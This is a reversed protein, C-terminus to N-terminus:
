APMEGGNRDTAGPITGLHAALAAADAFHLGPPCDSGQMLAMGGDHAADGLLVATCGAAHATQMDLATDGVYWVLPGAQVGIMALAHWIPAPHPKDAECDGAGVVARFRASWGLHEVERRLFGGAKDSVIGLPWARAVDLMAASGFLAAVHDLHVRRMAPGFAAAAEEWRAGFLRPFSERMSGRIRQRGQEVTWAPLGHLGFVENLAAVIGAWADVLTNDWDFVIATPRAHVRL